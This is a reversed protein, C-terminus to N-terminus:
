SPPRAWRRFAGRRVAIELPWLLAAALLLWPWYGDSAASEAEAPVFSSRPERLALGGSVDAIQQMLAQGRAAAGDDLPRYEAAYPQVYGASARRDIEGRTQHVDVAYPGEFPLAVEQSYRGPATQRLAITRATGDPLTLTADTSALDLPEGSPAVSDVTILATTASAATVRVQLPGSDPAPIAYRVLEAWFTGYQDWNEWNPAWDGIAQPTWAVSRGLGYQWTALVPDDDPSRLVVDAQPKATTAVYGGLEPLQEPTFDRLAPHPGTQEARFAGEVQPETRAIESELLTLRPIDDPTAAFHYRGAGWQAVDRMLATDSDAGLAIASITVGQAHAAELLQQYPARDTSFSRGDTLLVVHRVKGPQRLMEGVGSELAGYIDTGGGLPLTGIRNQIDALSAADGVQQFPVVWTQGIDFALVGIQDSPRLSETALMASEKAMNFKSAGVNPGMSASQDIILLLSVDAREPRPPPTMEVPLVAELPTDKYGGLTYSNRGGTAILGRGESRVYERLTAMQDLTLASAPVDLLMVGDFPDLASLSSPLLQPTRLEALVGSARLASQIAAVQSSSEGVLLIMPPPAVLVAAAASNNRALTDPGGAIDARLTLVGPEGANTTYPVTTTGPELAVDQQFLPAGNSSISLQVSVASTSVIAIQATFPEGARLTRPTAIGGIAVEPLSPHPIALTDVAVGDAGLARAAGLTDGDTPLGDSILTVRGGGASVIGRAAALAGGIDTADTFPLVGGAESTVDRGFYIVQAQGGASRVLAEAQSRAAARGSDGLSDSQDVAVVLTQNPRAIQAAAPNAVALVLLAAILLRLVLATVPVRGRQWLWGGLLLPLVALLWLWEPNRFLLM